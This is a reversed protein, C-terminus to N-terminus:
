AILTKGEDDKSFFGIVPATGVIRFATGRPEGSAVQVNAEHVDNAHSYVHDVYELKGKKYYEVVSCYLRKTSKKLGIKVWALDSVFTFRNKIIAEAMESPKIHDKVWRESVMTRFGTRRPPDDDSKSVFIIGTKQALRCPDCPAFRGPNLDCPADPDCFYCVVKADSQLLGSKSLEPM